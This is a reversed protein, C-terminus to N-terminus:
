IVRCTNRKGFWRYRNKAIWRYIGDRLNKPIFSFVAFWKWPAPLFKSIELAAESHTFAKNQYILIVSDTEAAIKFESVLARGKDSQLSVFSFQKKKDRKL